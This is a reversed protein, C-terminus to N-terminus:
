LSRIDNSTISLKGDSKRTAIKKFYEFYQKDMVAVHSLIWNKLFRSLGVLTLRKGATMSKANDAVAVIFDEHAKKHELYGAFKTATLIKEETSFHVRIYKVAELLVKNLYAREQADNGTVHSFMDNVLNVLNKHQDDIIKIGCEFTSSWTILESSFSGM